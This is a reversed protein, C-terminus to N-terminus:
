QLRLDHAGQVVCTKHLEGQAAAVAERCKQAAKQPEQHYFSTAYRVRENQEQVYICDTTSSSPSLTIYKKKKFLLLIIIITLLTPLVVGPCNQYIKGGIQYCKKSLFVLQMDHLYYTSTMATYKNQTLTRNHLKGAVTSTNEKPPWKKMKRTTGLRNCHNYEQLAKTDLYLGCYSPNSEM